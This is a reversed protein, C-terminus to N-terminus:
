YAIQAGPCNVEVWQCYAAEDETMMPMCSLWEGAAPCKPTVKATVPQSTDAPATIDLSAPGVVSQNVAPEDIIPQDNDAAPKKACGALVVLSVVFLLIFATRRM